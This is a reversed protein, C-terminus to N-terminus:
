KCQMFVYMHVTSIPLLSMPPSPLFNNDYIRCIITGISIQIGHIRYINKSFM